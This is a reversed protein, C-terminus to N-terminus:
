WCWSVDGEVCCWKGVGAGMVWSVDGYIEVRVDEYVFMNWV